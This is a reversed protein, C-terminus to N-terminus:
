ECWSHCCFLAFLGIKRVSAVTYRFCAPTGLIGPNVFDCLAFLEKLDNQVPTGTLLVRRQIEFSSLVNNTKIESNKLRHGEDCILLDVKIEKLVEHCRLLMEYSLILVPTSTNAFLKFCFYLSSQM